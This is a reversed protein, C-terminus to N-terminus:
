NGGMDPYEIECYLSCTLTDIMYMWGVQGNMKSRYNVYCGKSDPIKQYTSDLFNLGEFSPSYSEEWRKFNNDVLFKMCDNKDLKLITITVFEGNDATTVVDYNDPFKIRTVREYYDKDFNQRSTCGFLNLFIM